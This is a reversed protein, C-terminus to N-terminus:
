PSSVAQNNVSQQPGVGITRGPRTALVLVILVVAAAFTTRMGFWSAAAEGDAAARSAISYITGMVSAGTILGLNRSLNLMGSVMGRQTAGAHSMVRTYNATQFAAYGATVVVLSAIYGTVGASQPLIAFLFSGALVAYLGAAAVPASGLREVIRGAPASVLAAVVPGMSMTLGVAKPGLLLGKTLYFPGVVLTAM